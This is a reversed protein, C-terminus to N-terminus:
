AREELCLKKTGPYGPPSVPFAAFWPDLRLPVVGERLFRPGDVVVTIWWYLSGFDQLLRDARTQSLGLYAVALDITWVQDFWEKL